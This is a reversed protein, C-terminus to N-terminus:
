HGFSALIQQLADRERGKPEQELAKLLAWRAEPTGIGRLSRASALRIEFPEAGGFLGKKRRFLEVLPGIAGEGGLAPLTDFARLRLKEPARRDLALELVAGAAGVAKAQGLGFLIEMQTEPDTDPLLEALAAACEPGQLKWLARVAARRVRGDGNRLHPAIHDACTPDGLEALLNLANRVLFWTPSRLAELLPAVALSGSSRLLELLRGRWHRDNEQGLAVVLYRIAHEGLWQFYPLSVSNVQDRDPLFLQSYAKALLDPAGLREKIREIAWERWPERGGMLGSLEGLATVFRQVDGLAGRGVWVPLLQQLGEATHLHIPEMPEWSFHAQLKESLEIDVAPPLGPEEAWHVVGRLTQAAQLRISPDDGMLDAFILHLVRLFADLRGTDLLERLFALRQELSISWLQGEELVQVVRAELSMAEWRVHRLLGEALDGDLGKERMHIALARLMGEREHLPRLITQLVGQLHTWPVNRQMLSTIALGLIEGALERIGLALGQPKAPLTPLGALMSLQSEPTLTELAARLVAMQAVTPMGEGLGINYGMPGLDGLYAPIINLVSGLGQAAPGEAPPLLHPLPFSGSSDESTRESFTSRLAEKVLAVLNHPAGPPAPPAAEPEPLPEPAPEPQGGEGASGAPAVEEGEHVQQYRAQSLRVHAVGQAELFAAAGGAEELRGPRLQLIQLVAKAEDARLGRLFVFGSLNRETLQRHLAQTHVTGGEIPNGDVLLRTETATVQLVPQDTLWETFAEQVAALDNLARPHAEGYMQHSKLAKQLTAALDAFTPM